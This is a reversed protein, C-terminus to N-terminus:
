TPQWSTPGFHSLCCFSPWPVPPYISSVCIGCLTYSSLCFVCPPSYPDHSISSLPYLQSCQERSSSSERSYSRFIEEISPLRSHQASHDGCDKSRFTKALEGTLLGSASVRCLVYAFQGQVNGHPDYESYKDFLPIWFTGPDRFRPVFPHFGDVCYRSFPIAKCVLYQLCDGSWINQWSPVSRHCLGAKRNGELCGPHFAFVLLSM